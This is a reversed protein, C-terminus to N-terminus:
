VVFVHDIVLCDLRVVIYVPSVRCNKYRIWLAVVLDGHEIIPLLEKIEIAFHLRNQLNKDAFTKLKCSDLDNLIVFSCLHNFV